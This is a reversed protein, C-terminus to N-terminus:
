RQVHNCRLDCGLPKVVPNLEQQMSVAHRAPRFPRLSYELVGSTGIRELFRWIPFNLLLNETEPELSLEAESGIM